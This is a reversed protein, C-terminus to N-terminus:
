SSLSSSVEVATCWRKTTYPVPPPVTRPDRLAESAREIVSAVADLPAARLEAFTVWGLDIQAVFADEALRSLRVM